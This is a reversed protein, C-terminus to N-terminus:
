VDDSTTGLVLVTEVQNHINTYAAAAPSTDDDSCIADNLGIIVSRLTDDDLYIAWIV